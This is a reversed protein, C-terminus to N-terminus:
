RREAGNDRIEKRLYDVRMLQREKLHIEDLAKSRLTDLMHLRMDGNEESELLLKMYIEVEENQFGVDYLTMIMGLRQIDIDTYEWDEMAICIAECLGWEHYEKLIKKPIQYYTCIEDATM